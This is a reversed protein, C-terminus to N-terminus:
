LFPFPSPNYTDVFYFYIWNNQLETTSSPPHLSSQYRGARVIYMVEDDFEAMIYEDKTCVRMQDIRIVHVDDVLRCGQTLIDYM